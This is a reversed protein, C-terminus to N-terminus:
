HPAQWESLILDAADIGVPARRVQAPTKELRFPVGLLPLTLRDRNDPNIIIGHVGVQPDAVMEAVTRVPTCRIGAAALRAAADERSSGAVGARAEDCSASTLLYGDACKLIRDQVAAPDAGNWSLQTLWATLDQMSLDVFRAGGERDRQELAALSGLFGFYGGILDSISVGTKYPTGDQRTLDMVGCMAQLVTDMAARGEYVSDAGFGSIACYIIRPNIDCLTAFPFGLRGLSGPKLNEILIDSAAVLGSFATKGEQTQMDLEICRKESNNLNFLYSKGDVLPPSGRAPDGSTPEIKVVDAGLSALLRSALPATTWQGIELVRIGDLVPRLDPQPAAEDHVSIRSRLPLDGAAEASLVDSVGAAQPAFLNGPTLLRGGSLADTWEVIMNRHLLNPDKMLEPIGLVPGCPIGASSIRELIEALPRSRVWSEMLVDLDDLRQMRASRANLAEDVQLGDEVLLAALRRWQEETGTCLQLWGDQTRYCNWPSISPHRNGIRTSPEGAFHKPLFTALMTVACDFLSVDVRQAVHQLRRVRLAAVIAAAAYVASSLEVVPLQTLVPASSASGTTDVLGSLAQLEAEFIQSDTVSSEFAALDCHIISDPIAQSRWDDGDVDRSTILVDCGAVLNNLLRRDQEKALDVPVRRKCTAWLSAQSWKLENAHGGASAGPEVFVVMAGLQSLLSGCAGAGVRGGLEVVVVDNLSTDLSGKTM